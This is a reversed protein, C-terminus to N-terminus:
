DRELHLQWFGVDVWRDFKRGADRITGVHEFGLAEHLAVSSPHPLAIVAMLSHVPAHPGDPLARLRALLERYLATGLGQRRRGQELYVTTELTYAYAARDRYPAAYAFGAVGEADEAVIWPLGLSHVRAVRAGMAEVAAPELEFTATDHLVYHNYIDALRAADTEPVADRIVRGNDRM